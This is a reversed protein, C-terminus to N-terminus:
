KKRFQRATDICLVAVMDNMLADFLFVFDLAQEGENKM